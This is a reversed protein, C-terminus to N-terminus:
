HLVMLNLEGDVANLKWTHGAWEVDESKPEPKETVVRITRGYVILEVFKGEEDKVLITEM